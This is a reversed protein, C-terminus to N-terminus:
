IFAKIALPDGTVLGLIDLDNFLALIAEDEGDNTMVTWRDGGYKPVRVFDGPACWAGEPWLTMKERNHFALPGVALVKAVQTNYHETERVDDTLIIGGKTVKKPTRFQVLVRSGFPSVLPDCPPFAEELTGYDFAVKNAISQM